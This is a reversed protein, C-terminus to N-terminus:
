LQGNLVQQRLKRKEERKDNRAGQSLVARKLLAKLIQLVAKTM